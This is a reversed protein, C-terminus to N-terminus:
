TEVWRHRSYEGADIYNLAQSMALPQMFELGKPSPDRNTSPALFDAITFTNPLLRLGIESGVLTTFKAM